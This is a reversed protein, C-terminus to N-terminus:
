CQSLGGAIVVFNREFSIEWVGLGARYYYREFSVLPLGHCVLFLGFAFGSARAGVGAGGVSGAGPTFTSGWSNMGNTPVAMAVVRPSLQQRAVGRIRRNNM